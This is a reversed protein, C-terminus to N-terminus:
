GGREPRKPQPEARPRDIQIDDRWPERVRDLFIESVIVGNFDAARLDILDTQAMHLTAPQTLELVDARRVPDPIDNIEGLVYDSTTLELNGLRAEEIIFLEAEAELHINVQSQDDWPRSLSCTDLYLRM